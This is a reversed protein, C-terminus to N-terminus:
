ALADREVKSVVEPQRLPAGAADFFTVDRKRRLKGGIVGVFIRMGGLLLALPTSDVKGIASKTQLVIRDRRGFAADLAVDDVCLCAVPMGVCFMGADRPTNGLPTRCCASHWRLLGRPSLSMCALHEFGRTFRVGDPAMPLIDSGGHADMLGEGGLWRAFAQCDRCYCTARTHVRAPDLEGQVQGCECAFKM